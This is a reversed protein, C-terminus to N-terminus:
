ARVAPQRPGQWTATALGALVWLPAALQESVFVGAVAAIEMSVRVALLFAPDAAGHRGAAYL